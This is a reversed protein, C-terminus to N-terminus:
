VSRVVTPLEGVRVRAVPGEQVRGEGDVLRAQGGGLVFFVREVSINFNVAFLPGPKCSLACLPAQKCM